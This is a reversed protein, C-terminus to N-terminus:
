APGARDSSASQIKFCVREGAPQEIDVIM